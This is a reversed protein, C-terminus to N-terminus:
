IQFIQSLCKADPVRSQIWPVRQARPFSRLAAQAKAATFFPWPSPRSINHLQMTKICKSYLVAINYLFLAQSLAMWWQSETLRWSLRPTEHDWRGNEPQERTTRVKEPKKESQDRQDSQESTAAVHPSWLIARRWDAWAGRCPTESLTVHNWMYFLKRISQAKRIKRYAWVLM